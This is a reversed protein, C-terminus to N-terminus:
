LDDAAQRRCAAAAPIFSFVAAAGVVVAIM